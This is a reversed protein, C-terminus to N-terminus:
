PHTLSREIRSKNQEWFYEWSLRESKTGSAKWAKRARNRVIHRNVYHYPSRNQNFYQRFTAPM